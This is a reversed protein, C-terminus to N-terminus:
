SDLIGTVAVGAAQNMAGTPFSTTATANRMSLDIMPVDPTLFAQITGATITDVGIRHAVRIYRKKIQPLKVVLLVCNDALTGDSILYAPSAVIDTYTSNDVSEQLVAQYTATSSASTFATTVRVVLWMTGYTGGNSVTSFSGGLVGCDISYTSGNDGVTAGTTTMLDGVDLATFTNKGDMIM